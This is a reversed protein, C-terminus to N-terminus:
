GRLLYGAVVVILALAVAFVPGSVFWPLGSASQAVSRRRARVRIERLQEANPRTLEPWILCAVGYVALLLWYVSFGGSFGTILGCIIYIVATARLEAQDFREM